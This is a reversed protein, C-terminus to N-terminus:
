DSYVCLNGERDVYIRIEKGNSFDMLIEQDSCYAEEINGQTGQSLIQFEILKAGVIKNQIEEPNEVIIKM